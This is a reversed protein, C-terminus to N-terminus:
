PVALRAPQEKHESSSVDSDLIQFNTVVSLGGAFLTM